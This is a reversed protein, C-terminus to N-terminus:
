RCGFRGCIIRDVTIVHHTGDFKVKPIPQKAEHNGVVRQPRSPGRLNPDM